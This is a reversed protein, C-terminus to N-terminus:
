GPGTDTSRTVESRFLGTGILDLASNREPLPLPQVAELVERVPLDSADPALTAVAFSSAAGGLLVCATACAIRKPHRHTWALLAAGVTNLGIKM